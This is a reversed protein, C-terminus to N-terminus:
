KLTLTLAKFVCINIFNIYIYIHLYEKSVHASTNPTAIDHNIYSVRLQKLLFLICVCLSSLYLLHPSFNMTLSYVHKNDEDKLKVYSIKWFLFNPFNILIYISLYVPLYAFFFTNDLDPISGIVKLRVSEWSQGIMFGELGERRGLLLFIRSTRSYCFLTLLGM